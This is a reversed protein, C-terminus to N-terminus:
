KRVTKTCWPCFSWFDRAIGWQCATCKDKLGEIKWKRTVKKRCWPCYRMFPMLRKQVCKRNTCRAVYRTDGYQRKGDVEFGPGFCWPCYRWDSKLGRNCRPCCVPFSTGDPHRTRSQSCWPCCVMAESVPGGCRNCNFKTELLKGYLRQFQRWQVSKWHSKAGGLTSTSRQSVKKKLARPKVRRFAALLPIASAFRKRPDVEISKRLLAILDPHVRSKLRDMGVPPWDFPWEPLRGSFMRYIVLGLSFVDSRFSPKGMAQEPACYGITGSGSARITRLAIKAIGFDALMLEGDVLILNEPKIDCHIVRQEHAYAVAELAHDAYELATTPSLRSQLRDALTKDGLPYALVLLGDILDASKLPLVQPHQMRAALRIEKRFEAETAADLTKAIPVKLAVRIGELTDFAQYVVAFAGEGLKRELRYKGLRSGTRVNRMQNAM